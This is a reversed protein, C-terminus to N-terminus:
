SQLGFAVFCNVIRKRKQLSVELQLYVRGICHIHPSTQIEYNRNDTEKENNETTKISQM